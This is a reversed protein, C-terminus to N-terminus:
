LDCGWGIFQYNRIFIINKQGKSVSVEFTGEAFTSCNCITAFHQILGRVTSDAAVADDAAQFAYM